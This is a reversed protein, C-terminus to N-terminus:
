KDGETRLPIIKTMAIRTPDTADEQTLVVENERIRDVRWNLTMAVSGSAQIVKPRGVYDGREVVHGVGLPDVLMAKPKPVGTVIAILRMEEVATTPMYVRRQVGGQPQDVRYQTTYIKFPDRNALSEVFDEDRYAVAERLRTGTTGAADAAAGKTMDKAPAAPAGSGRRTAQPTEESCAALCLVVGSWVVLRVARPAKQLSRIM